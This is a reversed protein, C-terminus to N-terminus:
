LIRSEIGRVIASNLRMVVIFIVLSDDSPQKSEVGSYVFWNIAEHPSFTSTNQSGGEFVPVSQSFNMGGDGISCCLAFTIRAVAVFSNASVHAEM